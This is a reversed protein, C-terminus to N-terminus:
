KNGEWRKLYLVMIAFRKTIDLGNNAASMKFETHITSLPLLNQVIYVIDYKSLQRVTYDLGIRQKKGYLCPFRRM